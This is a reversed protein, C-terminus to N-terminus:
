SHDSAINPDNILKLYTEYNSEGPYQKVFQWAQLCAKQSKQPNHLHFDRQFQNFKFQPSINTPKEDLSKLYGEILDGYTKSGDNEQKAFARLYDNFKFQDGIHAKFFARTKADNYYHIVKTHTTLPSNSDRRSGKKTENTNLIGGNTSLFHDIRATLDEKSGTSPIKHQRCFAILENKRWYYQHLLDRPLDRTLPPRKMM